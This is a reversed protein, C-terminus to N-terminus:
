RGFRESQHYQFLPDSSGTWNEPQRESELYIALGNQAAIFAERESRHYIALGNPNGVPAGRESRQYQALGELNCGTVPILAQAPAKIASITVLVAFAILVTVGLMQIKRNKLMKIEKIPLLQNSHWDIVGTYSDGM